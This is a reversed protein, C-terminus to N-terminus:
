VFVDTNEVSTLVTPSMVCEETEPRFRLTFWTELRLGSVVDSGEFPAKFVFRECICM